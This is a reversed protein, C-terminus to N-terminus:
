ARAATRHDIANLVRREAPSFGGPRATGFALVAFPGRDAAFPLALVEVLCRQQHADEAMGSWDGPEVRLARGAAMAEQLSAADVPSPAWGHDRDYIEVPRNPAWAIARAPIQPHLTWRYLVLRDIPLAAERLQRGLGVVFGVEDFTRWDLKLPKRM